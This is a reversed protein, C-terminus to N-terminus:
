ADRDERLLELTSKTGRPPTFRRKKISELIEIHSRNSTPKLLHQLRRDVVEEILENLENITMNQIPHTSM